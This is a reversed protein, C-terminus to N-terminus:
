TANVYESQLEVDYKLQLICNLYICDSPSIFSRIPHSGLLAINDLKLANIWKERWPHETPFELLNCKAGKSREHSCGYACCFDKKGM